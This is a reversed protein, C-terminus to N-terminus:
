KSLFNVIFDRARSASGTRLCQAGTSDAVIFYPRTPIALSKWNRDAIVVPAWVRDYTVTTDASVRAAWTLSDTASSLEVARLRRLPYTQSLERLIMAASDLRTVEDDLFSYLTLSADRPSIRITKNDPGTMFRVPITALIEEGLQTSLLAPYSALLARSRVAPSLLRLLSDAQVEYGPTRYISTLLATSETRGPNAGIYAAVASNIAATNDTLLAEANDRVFENYAETPDNGRAKSNIPEAPDIDLSIEDGNKVIASVFPTQEVADSVTVLAYAPAVGTFRFSGDIGNLTVTKYGSGDFYSVTVPRDAGDAFRGAVTFHTDDSCSCFLASAAIAIRSLFRLNM